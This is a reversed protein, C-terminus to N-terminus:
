PSGGASEGSAPPVSGDAAQSADPPVQDGGLIMALVRDRDDGGRAYDELHLALQKLLAVAKPIDRDIVTRLSAIGAGYASRQSAMESQWFRCRRNRQELDDLRSQARALAKREDVVSPRSDATSKIMEKNYLASRAAVVQDQCKRIQRRLEEPREEDLWAGFRDVDTQAEQLSLDMAEAARLLAVRFRDLTELDAVKVQESM